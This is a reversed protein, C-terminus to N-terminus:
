KAWVKGWESREKYAASTVSSVVANVVMIAVEMFLKWGPIATIAAAHYLLSGKHAMSFRNSM